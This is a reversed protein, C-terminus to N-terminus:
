DTTVSKMHKFIHQCSDKSGPLIRDPCIEALPAMVFQRVTALPHPLTLDPHDLTMADYYLLDLDLSRPQNKARIPERGFEVELNQLETLLDLPTLNVEMEVAANLFAPSDAPCDVPETEILSSLKFRGGPVILCRLREAASRITAERDGLNSGLGIGALAM